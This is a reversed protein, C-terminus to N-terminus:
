LNNTMEKILFDIGAIKQYKSKEWISQNVKPYITSLTRDVKNETNAPIIQIDKRGLYDKFLTLLDFKNIVDSPVIHTVHGLSDFIQNSIIGELLNAYCISTIGNWIHNKYGQIASNKPLHNFWEFLGNFGFKEPGVLSCRLHKVNDSFVEGLSKSASYHDTLEHESNEKYFGQKGSFVCDTAVQIIKCDRNLTSTSLYYPFISNIKYADSLGSFDKENIQQKIKGLCNVIFDYNSFEFNETPELISYYKVRDDLNQKKRSTGWVELSEKKFHEFVTSGLMGDIGLVLIKM